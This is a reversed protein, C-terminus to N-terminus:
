SGPLLTKMRAFQQQNTRPADASAQPYLEQAIERAREIRESTLPHTQFMNEIRSPESESLEQLTTLLDVMGYPNRNARALYRIGIEDAQYEDERSYKLLLMNSAIQAGAEAAQGKEGGIVVGALQALVSAGMQTQLQQVNHLAAVHGIEHALVAALEGEDEMRRMLGATVFVKGGPLAFANPVDSRVVTFEWPMDPRDSVAALRQGINGVYQQLESSQVEGGFEQEFQPAAEQGMAIEQERSILRLQKEGTAPNEACGTFLAGLLAACSMIILHKIM